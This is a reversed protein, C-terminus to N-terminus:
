TNPSNLLGLSMILYSPRKRSIIQAVLLSWLIIRSYGKTEKNTRTHNACYKHRTSRLTQMGRGHATASMSSSKMGPGVTTVPFSHQPTVIRQSIMVTWMALGCFITLCLTSSSLRHQSLTRRHPLMSFMGHGALTQLTTSSRRAPSSIHAITPIVTIISQWFISARRLKAGPIGKM